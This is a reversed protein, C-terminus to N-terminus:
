EEKHEIQLPLPKGQLAAIGSRNIVGNMYGHVEQKAKEVTGEMHEEFQKAVFPLNSQLETLLSQFTGKLSAAKGKPIGIEDIQNIAQKVKGITKELKEQMEGSFQDTRSEPSPLGPISEGNHYQLTCPVGDGINPSSVFTAWQAESLAVEIIRDRGFHWDRNLNRHLESVFIRITMFANHEFDSAYLNVSGSVRSASIQAFAPHTTVKEDMRGPGEATVTVPQEIPRAM